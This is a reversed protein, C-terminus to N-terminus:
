GWGLALSGPAGPSFYPNEATYLIWFDHAAQTTAPNKLAAVAMTNKMDTSLNFALHLHQPTTSAVVNLAGETAANVKGPAPAPAPPFTGPLLKSREVYAAGLGLGGLIWAWLPIM